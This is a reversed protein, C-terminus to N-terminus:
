RAQLGTVILAVDDIAAMDDIRSTGDLLARPGHGRRAELASIAEVDAVGTVIGGEAACRHKEVEGVGFVAPVPVSTLAVMASENTPM